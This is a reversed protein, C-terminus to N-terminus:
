PSQAGVAGEELAVGSEGGASGDGNGSISLRTVVVRLAGRPLQKLPVALLPPYRVRVATGAGPGYTCPAGAWLGEVRLTPGLELWAIFDAFQGCLTPWPGVM